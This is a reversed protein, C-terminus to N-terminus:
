EGADGSCSVNAYPGSSTQEAIQNGDALIRCTISGGDSGNSATMTVFKGLGDIDVDRSWPLTANTEQAMDLNTGSYTVTAGTGTGEVQYTVSVSRNSERDIESAVGGFLAVCGAFLLVFALIVGLLVWPWIRRKKQQPPPYPPPPYGGQGYGQQGYPQQGYGQQGPQGYPQQGYGQQGYSGQQGYPQQSGYGPQGTQGYQPPGDSRDHDDDSGTGGPGPPQTSM